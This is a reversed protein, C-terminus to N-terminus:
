PQVVKQADLHYIALHRGGLVLEKITFKGEVAVPYTSFDTTAGGVMDVVICDFLAAGPGFCCEMNDRVLVFKTIGKQQFSPLIWGRIRISQGDLKNIAPTLLRRNFPDGKKMDFKITDFSIDRAAGSKPETRAASAGHVTLAVLLLALTVALKGHDRFRIM